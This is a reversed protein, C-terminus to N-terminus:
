SDTFINYRGQAQLDTDVRLPGIPLRNAAIIEGMIQDFMGKWVSVQDNDQTYLGAHALSGYLYCDPNDTLMWNTSNSALPPVTRFYSYTATYSADPAPYFRLESGELSYFEPRGTTTAEQAEAIVRAPAPTVAWTLTGDTLTLDVAERFDSPVALYEASATATARAFMSRVRLRRNMAAECSAVFDPIVSTLDTRHLNAAISALLDTYNALAM